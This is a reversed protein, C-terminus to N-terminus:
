LLTIARSKDFFLNQPSSTVNMELDIVALATFNDIFVHRCAFTYECVQTNWRVSLIYQCNNAGILLVYGKQVQAADMEM